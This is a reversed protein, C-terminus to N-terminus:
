FSYGSSHISQLYLPNLNGIDTFASDYLHNNETNFYTNKRTSLCSFSVQNEDVLEEMDSKYSFIISPELSSFFRGLFAQYIFPIFCTFYVYTTGNLVCLGNYLKNYFLGCGVAQFFNMLSLFLTYWYFHQKAPLPLKRGVPTWKLILIVTYVLFFLVSSVFWFVLGGHSFLKYNEDPIYFLEEPKMLELTTEDALNWAHSTSDIIMSVMCRVINICVSLFVLHYVTYLVPINSEKFRRRAQNIRLVLFVLFLVNPIFLALDWAQVRTNGLKYYLLRRCFQDNKTVDSTLTTSSSFKLILHDSRRFTTAFIETEETLLSRLIQYTRCPEM